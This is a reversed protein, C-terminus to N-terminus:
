SRATASDSSAPVLVWGSRGSRDEALAYVGRRSKAGTSDARELRGSILRLLDGERTGIWLIRDRDELLATVDDSELGPEISFRWSEAASTRALGQRTGAWIRGEADALLTNVVPSPLGDGTAFVRTSSGFALVGEDTAAWLAGGTDVELDNIKAPLDSMGAYAPHPAFPKAIGSPWHGSRTELPAPGRSPALQWVGTGGTGVWLSEQPAPALAYVFPHTLGENEAYVVFRRNSYRALGGVLAAWLTGDPTELLDRVFSYQPLGLHGEEFTVFRTGDYRVLCCQTGLWLYGDRAQLASLVAGEPLGDTTTWTEHAYQEISRAPDLASAPLAILGLTLAISAQIRRAPQPTM